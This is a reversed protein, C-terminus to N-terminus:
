SVADPRVDPGLSTEAGNQMHEIAESLEERTFPKPLLWGGMALVKEAHHDMGYGSALIVKVLPDIMRLHRFIEIGDMGPLFLDLIVVDIVDHKQSFLRLADKGSCAPLVTFGLSQVMEMVYNLIPQEDDVLLINGARFGALAAPASASAQETGHTAAPFLLRFTTGKGFQSAVRIHGQHNKVVGYVSALGLGTGRGIEKTTFFPEFIRNLTSPDMGVGTDVIEIEWYLGPKIEPWDITANCHAVMKSAVTLQGGAPMADAANVFLNLFVLEMQGQDAEIVASGDGLRYDVVIKKHTRQVVQLTEEIVRHIDIAAVVYKGKRAYGLLQRTLSAGSQIQDEIRKLKDQLAAVEENELRLLSINAQIGMLLNNFDHAIGGALTGIAEMKQSQILQAQLRKEETMDMALCIIGTIHRAGDMNVAASFKFIRSDENKHQIQIEGGTVREHGNILRKFQERYIRVHDQVVFESFDHGIAEARPYGLISEWAPNVYTIVGTENLDLIIVPANESLAKFLEESRRLAEQAMKTETIDRLIVLHGIPKEKNSLVSASMHLQLARGYSEIEVVTPQGLDMFGKPWWAIVQEPCRGILTPQPLGTLAAAAANLDLIRQHTDMVLVGDGMNQIVIDHAIPVIDLLRYRVIGWMVAVGSLAFAFPTLDLYPLPQAGTLFLVNCLWPTLAAIGLSIAQRRYIRQSDIASRALFLFGLFMLAYSYTTHIWFWPGFHRLALVVRDVQRWEVTEFMLHHYSNTATVLLTLIPVTTLLALHAARLERVRNSYYLGFTFWAVPVTVIFLYKLNGSFVKIPLDRSIVEFISLFSWMSVAGMLVAFSHTGLTPRYKLVMVALVASIIVASLLLLAYPQFFLSM